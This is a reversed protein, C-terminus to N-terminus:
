HSTKELPWLKLTVSRTFDEKREPLPLPSSKRIAREVAEDLAPQGSSKRLKVDTIIGGEAGQIQTIVFEVEPNGSAGPPVFINSRIKARIKESYDALGKNRAAAANTSNSHAEERALAEALQDRRQQEAERRLMEKVPDYKPSPKPEPKPEPKKEPKPEPKKEPEKVAIDPKPPTVKKPPPPPPEPKPPTKPQVPAPPPAPAPQPVDGVLEVEVTVPATNQWRIGYILFLALLVHVLVAAVIAMRRGPAPLRDFLHRADDMRSM